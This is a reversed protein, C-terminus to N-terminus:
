KQTIHIRIWDKQGGEPQRHEVNANGELVITFDRKPSDESGEPDGIVSTSILDIAKAKAVNIQHGTDIDMGNDPHLDDLMQQFSNYSKKWTAMKLNGEYLSLVQLLQLSLM